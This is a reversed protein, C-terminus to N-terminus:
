KDNFSSSSLSFLSVKQILLRFNDVDDLQIVKQFALDVKKPLYTKPPDAKNAALLSELFNPPAASPLRYPLQENERQENGGSEFIALYIRCNQNILICHCLRSAFVNQDTPFSPPPTNKSALISLYYTKERTSVKILLYLLSRPSISM